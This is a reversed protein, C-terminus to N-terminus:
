PIDNHLIQGILKGNRFYMAIQHGFSNEALPKEKLDIKGNYFEDGIFSWELKEVGDANTKKDPAGYTEIAKQKTDGLKFGKDSVFYTSNIKASQKLFGDFDKLKQKDSALENDIINLLGMSNILDAPIDNNSFLFITLRHYDTYLEFVLTQKLIDNSFWVKDYSITQGSIKKFSSYNDAKQESLMEKSVPYDDVSFRKITDTPKATEASKAKLTTDLNKTKVIPTDKKLFTEPMTNCSLFGLALVITLTQLTTM